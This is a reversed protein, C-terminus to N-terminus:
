IVIFCRYCMGGPEGQRLLQHVIQQTWTTGAKVFTAIFVDGDKTVFNDIINIFKNEDFTPNQPIGRVYTLKYDSTVDKSELQTIIPEVYAFESM